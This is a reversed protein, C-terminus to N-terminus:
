VPSFVLKTCVVPKSYIEEQKTVMDSELVFVLM